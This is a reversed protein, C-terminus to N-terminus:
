PSKSMEHLLKPTRRTPTQIEPFVCHQRSALGDEIVEAGMRGCRTRRLPAGGYRKGCAAIVKFESAVTEVAKLWRRSTNKAPMGDFAITRGAPARRSFKGGM